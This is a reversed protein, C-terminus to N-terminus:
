LCGRVAALAAKDEDLEALIDLLTREEGDDSVRFTAAPDTEALVKMDHYLSEAQAQAEPGTPDSFAKDALEAAVPAGDGAGRVAERTPLSIGREALSREAAALRATYPDPLLAETGGADPSPRTAMDGEPALAAPQLDGAAPATAITTADYKRAMRRAAKEGAKEHESGVLSKAAVEDGAHAKFGRMFDRQAVPDNPYKKGAAEAGDFILIAQREEADVAMQEAHGLHPLGELTADGAADGANQEPRPVDSLTERPVDASVPSADSRASGELAAGGDAGPAADRRAGILDRETALAAEHAALESEMHAHDLDRQALELADPEGGIDQRLVIRDDGGVLKSLRDVRNNWGRRFKEKGPVTDAIHNLHARYLELARAPDGGSDRLIQRGHGGIFEADFAIAATRPDVHDFEPLWYKRRAIASAEAATLNAVDVGPNYKQAIGFKTTGGDAESFHVVKAGGELDNQVFGIIRDASLNPEPTGRSVDRSVSGVPAPVVGTALATGARPDVPTDTLIAAMARALKNEHTENGRWGPTFPSTETVEAGRRVVNIAAQMDPTFKDKGVLAEAIEPLASEPIDSANSWRKRMADPLADYVQAMVGDYGRGAIAGAKGFIPSALHLGGGIVAGGVGAELSNMAGEGLTLDEGIAARNRAVQPQMVATGLFNVIFERAAIRALTGEGGGVLSQAIVAPDELTKSVGGAFNVAGAAFGNSNDIVTRAEARAAQERELVPALIKDATDPVDKLAGPYRKKIRAIEALADAIVAGQGVNADSALGYASATNPDITRPDITRIGHVPNILLAQGERRRVDNIAEITPAWATELRRDAIDSNDTAQLTRSADWVEGLTSPRPSLAPPPAVPAQYRGRIDTM